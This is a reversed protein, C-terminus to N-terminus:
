NILKEYEDMLANLMKEETFNSKFFDMSAASM